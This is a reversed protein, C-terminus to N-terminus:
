SKESVCVCVCVCVCMSFLKVFSFLFLLREGAGEIYFFQKKVNLQCPAIKIDFTANWTVYFRCVNLLDDDDHARFRQM